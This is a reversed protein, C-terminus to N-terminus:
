KTVAAPLGHRYFQGSESRWLEITAALAVVWIVASLGRSEIAGSALDLPTAICCLGFAISSLVRAWSRGGKNKWAMWLWVVCQVMGAFAARLVEQTHSEVIPRLLGPHWVGIRPALLIIVLANLTTLAAGAYMLRVARVVAQPAAPVLNASMTLDAVPSVIAGARSRREQSSKPNGTLSQQVGSSPLHGTPRTRHLNAALWKRLLRPAGKM